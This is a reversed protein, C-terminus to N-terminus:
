FSGAYQRHRQMYMAERNSFSIVACTTFTIVAATLFILFM